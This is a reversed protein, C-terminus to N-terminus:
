WKGSCKQSIWTGPLRVRDLSPSRVAKTLSQNISRIDNHRTEWWPQSLATSPSSVNPPCVFEAFESAVPIGKAFTNQTQSLTRMPRSWLIPGHVYHDSVWKQTNVLIFVACRMCREEMHTAQAGSFWVTTIRLKPIGIRVKEILDAVHTSITVTRTPIARRWFVAVLVQVYFLIKHLATELQM